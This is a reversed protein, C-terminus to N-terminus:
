RKKQKKLEWIFLSNQLRKQMDAPLLTQFFLLLNKM